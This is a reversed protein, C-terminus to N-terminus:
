VISITLAVELVHDVVVIVATVVVLMLPTLLTRGVQCSLVRHALLRLPRSPYEQRVLCRYFVLMLPLRAGATMGLTDGELLIPPRSVRLLMGTAIVAIFHTSMPLFLHIEVAGVM